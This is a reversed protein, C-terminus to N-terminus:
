EEGEKPIEFYGEVARFEYSHKKALLTAECMAEAQGSYIPMTKFPKWDHPNESGQVRSVIMWFHQTVM